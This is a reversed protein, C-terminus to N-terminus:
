SRGMSFQMHKLLKIYIFINCSCIFFYGCVKGEGQKINNELVVKYSCSEKQDLETTQHIFYNLIKSFKIGNLENYHCFILVLTQVIFTQSYIVSLVNYMISLKLIAASLHLKSFCLCSQHCVLLTVFRSGFM